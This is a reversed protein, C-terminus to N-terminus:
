GLRLAVEAQCRKIPSVQAVALLYRDEGVGAALNAQRAQPLKPLRMTDDCRRGLQRRLAGRRMVPRHHAKGAQALHGDDGQTLLQGLGDLPKM